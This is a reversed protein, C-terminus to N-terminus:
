ANVNEVEAKRKEKQYKSYLLWGIPMPLWFILGRFILTTTIALGKHLGFAILLVSMGGEFVGMAGPVFSLMSLFQTLTFTIFATTFSIHFGLALVLVYLTIIDLIFVMLQWLIAMGFLPGSKRLTSVKLNSALEEFILSIHGKVGGNNDNANHLKNHFKEVLWSLLKGKKNRQLLFFISLFTIAIATFGYIFFVLEPHEWLIGGQFILISSIVFLIGFASFLTAMELVARGIGEALNFGRKKLYDIFFVQGSLGASPLAQNLFQITFALPYLSRVPIDLGKMKLIYKYNLASFYYTAFQLGLALALWLYNAKSVKDGLDVLEGFKFYVLVVVGFSVIYFILQGLKLKPLGKVVVGTLDTM